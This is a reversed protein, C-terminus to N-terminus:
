PPLPEPWRWEIVALDCLGLATEGLWGALQQTMSDPLGPLHPLGFHHEEVLCVQPPLFQRLLGPFGQHLHLM